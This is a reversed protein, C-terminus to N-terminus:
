PRGRQLLFGSALLLVMAFGSLLAAEPWVDALRGGRTFLELFANLGWALPSLQSATRMIDPMAFVPVMVGGIAAAIVVAVAGIMSAQEYTRTAAGLFLGFATAAMAASLLVLALAGYAPGVVLPAMGFLPMVFRGILLMLGFQVLCVAGYAALKGTLLTLFSVPLLQLRTMIGSTRERVLAGSLPVAIFFMGFLGWAPVNQQVASPLRAFGGRRAAAEELAMLPHGDWRLPMGELQRRVRDATGPGLSEGLTDAVAGPLRAAFAELKWQIEIGVLLRRLSQVLAARFAGGALPDFHITLGPPDDAPVPAGDPPALMARAAAEAREGVAASLGAPIVLCAQYDGEAVLALARAEDLVQDSARARVRIGAAAALGERLLRAVEGRDQDVWLLVVPDDGMTKLVNMQVVSVVIVLLAPMLFLMLLGARDRGLLRWEKILSTLLRDM